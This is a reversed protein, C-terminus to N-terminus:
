QWPTSQQINPNALLANTPIPLFYHKEGIPERSIVTPTTSLVSIMTKTRVLDFWRNMEAGLEKAREEIIANMLGVKSDVEMLNANPFDGTNNGYARQRVLNLCEIALAPQTRENAAEALMLLVDAYRLVSIKADGSVSNAVGQGAYKTFNFRSATAYNVSNMQNKNVNAVPNSELNAKFQLVYAKWRRQDGGEFDQPATESAGEHKKWYELEPFITGYGTNLLVNRGNTVDWSPNGANGGFETFLGTWSLGESSNGSYNFNIYFMHEKNGTGIESPYNNKLWLNSYDNYLSYGSSLKIANCLEIVADYNADVIEGSINEYYYVDNKACSALWLHVRAKLGMAAWKDPHGEAAVEPLNDVAYALDSLIFQSVEEVSNRPGPAEFPDEPLNESIVVPGWGRLLMTYYFARIFKAEAVAAEYNDGMVDKKIGNICFNADKVGNYFRSYINDLRTDVAGYTLKSYLFYSGVNISRNRLEDSMTGFIGMVDNNGYNKQLGDYMATIAAFTQESSNFFNDGNYFDVVEEDLNCSVFSGAAIIFLLAWSWMKNTIYKHNKM